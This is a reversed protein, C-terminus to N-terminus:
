KRLNFELQLPDCNGYLGSLMDALEYYSDNNAIPYQKVIDELDAQSIMVFDIDAIHTSEEESDQYYYLEYGDIDAADVTNGDVQLLDSKEFFLFDDEFGLQKNVVEGEYEYSIYFFAEDNMPYAAPSVAIRLKDGAWVYPAQSFYLKFDIDNNIGGARSSMGGRVPSITSKLVYVLDNKKSESNGPKLIYRGKDKNLVAAMADASKFKVKEQEGIKDGPKLMTGDKERVIEGKVHLVQYEQSYATGFIMLILFLLPTSKM